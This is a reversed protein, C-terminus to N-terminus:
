AVAVRVRRARRWAVVYRASDFTMLIAFPVYPITTSDAVSWIVLGIAASGAWFARTLYVSPAEVLLPIRVTVATGKGRRSETQLSGGVAQARERMSDSGMGRRVGDADYGLGNDLVTLDVSRKSATLTVRVETARAHRAVNSLAEQAVRLLAQHAGAPLAESAPLSTADFRVHAGTRFALADCQRKLADVLGANEVVTTRLHDLMADMEAMSERASARVQALARRANIPDDEFRTEATAAATQIAFIQQKVSDHLDRALRHREEHAGAEHMQERYAAELLASAAPPPNGLWGWYYALPEADGGHRIWGGYLGATAFFLGFFAWRVERPVTDDRVGNMQTFAIVAVVAHAVLFWGLCRRRDVPNEVLSSAYACLASAVICAGAIRTVSSVDWPQGTLTADLWMPGWGFVLFGIPGVVFAYLRLVSRSDVADLPLGRQM